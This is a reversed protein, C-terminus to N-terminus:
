KPAMDAYRGDPPHSGAPYDRPYDRGSAPREEYRKSKKGKKKRKGGHSFILGM